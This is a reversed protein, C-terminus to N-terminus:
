ASTVWESLVLGDFVQGHEMQGAPKPSLGIAISQVLYSLSVAISGKIISLHLENSQPKPQLPVQAKSQSSDPGSHSNQALALVGVADGVPVFRPPPLALEGVAEGVPDARPPPLGVPALVLVGVAPVARPPPSGVPSGDVEGVAEGDPVAEAL